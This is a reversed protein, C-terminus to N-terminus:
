SQAVETVIGTIKKFDRDKNLFYKVGMSEAKSRYQQFTYNTLIVVIPSLGNNQIRDLVEFGIGDPMRIDLFVIDPKTANIKDIASSVDFAQGVINATDLKTLLNVLREQFLQSDDVIFINVQNDM